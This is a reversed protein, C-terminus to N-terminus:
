KKEQRNDYKKNDHYHKKRRRKMNRIERKLDKYYGECERVIIREAAIAAMGSGIGCCIREATGVSAPIVKTAASSTMSAIGIGGAFEVVGLITQEIM